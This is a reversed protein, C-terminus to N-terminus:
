GIIVSINILTKIDILSSLLKESVMLEKGRM